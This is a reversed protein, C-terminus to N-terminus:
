MWVGLRLMLCVVNIKNSPPNEVIRLAVLVLPGLRNM